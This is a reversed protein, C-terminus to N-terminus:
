NLFMKQSLRACFKRALSKHKWSLGRHRPLVRESIPLCMKASDEALQKNNTVKPRFFYNGGRKKAAEQKFQEGEVFIDSDKMRGRGGPQSLLCPMFLFCRKRVSRSWSVLAADAALGDQLRKYVEAAIDRRILFAHTQYVKKDVAVGVDLPKFNRASLDGTSICGGLYVLGWRPFGTAIRDMGRAFSARVDCGPMNTLTADDELVLAWRLSPTELMRRLVLQHSRNCGVAGWLEHGPRTFRTAAMRHEAIRLRQTCVVGDEHWSAEFVRPIVGKFGRVKGAHSSVDHGKGDVAEFKSGPRQALERGDVADVFTPSVGLAQCVKTIHERRDPRRKLNIVFTTLEANLRPVPHGEHLQTERPTSRPPAPHSEHLQQTAEEPTTCEPAMPRLMTPDALFDALRRLKASDGECRIRLDHATYAKGVAVRLGLHLHREVVFRESDHRSTAASM